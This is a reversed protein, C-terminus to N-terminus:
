LLPHLLGFPMALIDPDCYHIWTATPSFRLNCYHFGLGQSVTVVDPDHLTSCSFFLQFLLRPFTKSILFLLLLINLRYVRQVVQLFVYMFTRTSWSIKLIRRIICAYIHIKCESRVFLLLHQYSIFYEAHVFNTLIPPRTSTIHFVFITCFYLNNSRRYKRWIVFFKQINCRCDFVFINRVTSSYFVLKIYSAIKNWKKHAWCTESM